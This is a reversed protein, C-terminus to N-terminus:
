LSGPLWTTELLRWERTAEALTLPRPYNYMVGGPRENYYPRNCDPCGSTRFAEGAALMDQLESSVPPVHQLHGDADYEFGEASAMGNVLLWRAVQVRRYQGLSPPLAGALATGKVPTFAFLGVSIDLRLLDQIRRIMQRETEGLGAILHTAISGPFAQTSEELLNLTRGWGPGKVRCYVEESAADLAITVRQAGAELLLAVDSIGRPVISACIPLHCARSLADVADRTEEVHKRGVTSQFCVRRITGAEATTSLADIITDRSFSPWTVRSLAAADASSQRAQTCFACNRTCRQGLMLYATTPPADMRLPRLELVAATGSSARWSPEQAQKEGYGPALESRLM